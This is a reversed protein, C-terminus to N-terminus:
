WSSALDGFSMYKIGAQDLLRLVTASAGQNGTVGSKAFVWMYDQLQGNRLLYADRSIESRIDAGATVRGVKM